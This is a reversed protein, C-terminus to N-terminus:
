MMSRSLHDDEMCCGIGYSHHLVAELLLLKWQLDSGTCSAAMSASPQARSPHQVPIIKRACLSIHMLSWSKTNRIVPSLHCVLPSWVVQSPIGGDSGVVVWGPVRCEIGHQSGESTLCCCSSHLYLPLHMSICFLHYNMRCPIAWSQLRLITEPLIPLVDDEQAAALSASSRRTWCHSNLKLLLHGQIM